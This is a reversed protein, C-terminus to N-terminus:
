DGFRIFVTFLKYMCLDLWRAQDSAIDADEHTLYVIGSSYCKQMTPLNMRRKREIEPPYHIAPISSLGTGNQVVSVM